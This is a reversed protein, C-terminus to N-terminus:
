AVYQPNHQVSDTMHHMTDNYFSKSFDEHDIPPEPLLTLGTSLFMTDTSDNDDIYGNTEAWMRIADVMDMIKEEHGGFIDKITYRGDVVVGERGMFKFAAVINDLIKMSVSGGKQDPNRRVTKNSLAELLVILTDGNRFASSLNVVKKGQPLYQNIWSVYQTSTWSREPKNITDETTPAMMLLSPQGSHAPQRSSSTAQYPDINDEDSDGHLDNSPSAPNSAKSSSTPLAPEHTLLTNPIHSEDEEEEVKQMPENTTSPAKYMIVSPPRPRMRQAVDLPVTAVQNSSMVPSTYDRMITAKMLVQLWLKMAEKTDSCFFFTREQEHQAKFCYKNSYISEDVVMRYGRLNIIGKMRVDKPSKFYFLNTGKLVFWRKNWTKYKDSRKNLWGEHDPAQSEDTSPRAIVSGISAISLKQDAPHNIRTSMQQQLTEPGSTHMNSSKTPTSFSTSLHGADKYKSSRNSHNTSKATGISSPATNHTNSRSINKSLSSGFSANSKPRHLTSSYNRSSDSTSTSLPPAPAKRPFRYMSDTDVPSSLPSPPSQFSSYYNDGLTSLSPSSNISSTYHHGHQLLGTSFPEQPDPGSTDKATADISAGKESSANSSKLKNIATMIKYRRGYALIGLEKLTDMTLDLLVDGTIEQEVFDNIVNELGVSELWACVRPVDWLETSQNSLIPEEHGERYRSASEPSSYSNSTSSAPNLDLNNSHQDFSSVEISQHSPRTPSTYNMPFLGVQGRQNRGQWWGDHYKEDKEIVIVSEGAYFTIEDEHEREFDHIAFVQEPTESM